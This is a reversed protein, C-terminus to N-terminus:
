KNGGKTKHKKILKYGIHGLIFGILFKAVDAM